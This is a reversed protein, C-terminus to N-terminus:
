GGVDPVPKELKKDLSLRRRQLLWVAVVALLGIADTNGAPEVLIIGGALLLLREWWKGDTVLFGTTAGGIAMLGVVASSVSRILALPTVDVLVLVPSLVFFFPVLYAAIGLKFAEFGTQMPEAQAIGAGAYAALCVPPTIDAVIAFYFVFLHAAILPVGVQTLAPAAVTAMIVYKATTPIGMGLLISAIMTFVMILYLNGGALSVIAGALKVGLGTLTIVGIIIGAAACVIVVSLANRAGDELTRVLDWWRMRTEALIFSVAITALIAFFAARMPTYGAALLYVIVVLPAALFWKAKLLAWWDPLQERPLGTLGTRKAEFHVTSFVGTFYLLAPIIASLVISWYPIGTFESMIFAAAGMIPPMLQGGTSAAAEVAGAFSPRYGISKMLPITIAGTGVTNAVSSGSITGQTASAVVAAKAPGGTAHGFLGVALDTLWNGIRTKKLFTAFLIFLFIFQSSVQIPVGLIGEASIWSHTALRLISFGRHGLLGPIMDGFYGYLLFVLALGVIIPGSLRRTAELVLGIAILSVIMDVETFAGARAILERYFFLHYGVAVVSLGALIYDYWPIRNSLAKISCPYLLFTLLLAFGVHPARQLTPPFVGFAATYLHFLAFAVAIVFVVRRMTGALDRYAYEREYRALVDKGPLSEEGKRPPQLDRGNMGDSAM